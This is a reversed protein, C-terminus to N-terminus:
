SFVVLYSTDLKVNSQDLTVMEKRLKANSNVISASVTQITPGMAELTAATTAALKTAETEAAFWGDKIKYTGGLAKEVEFSMGGSLKVELNIGAELKIDVGGTLSIALSADAQASISFSTSAGFNFNSAATTQFSFDM